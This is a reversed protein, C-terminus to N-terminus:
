VAIWKEPVKYVWNRDDPRTMHSTHRTLQDCGLWTIRYDENRIITSRRITTILLDCRVLGHAKDLVSREEQQATIGIEGM